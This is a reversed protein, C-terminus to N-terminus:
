ALGELDDPAEVGEALAEAVESPLLFPVRVFAALAEDELDTIERLMVRLGLCQQQVLSLPAGRQLLVAMLGVHLALREVQRAGHPSLYTNM